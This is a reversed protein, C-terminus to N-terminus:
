PLSTPGRRCRCSSRCRGSRLEWGLSSSVRSPITAPRGPRAAAQVPRSSRGPPRAAKTTRARRGAAAPLWGLPVDSFDPFPYHRYVCPWGDQARGRAVRGVGRGGRVRVPTGVRGRTVPYRRRSSRIAASSLHAGPDPRTEPAPQAAASNSGARASGPHDAPSGGASNTASSSSTAAATRESLRLVCSNAIPSASWRSRSDWTATGVSSIQPRARGRTRREADCALELLRDGVRLEDHDGTGTM